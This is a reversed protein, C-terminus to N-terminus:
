KEDKLEEIADRLQLIADYLAGDLIESLSYHISISPVPKSSFYEYYLRKLEAVREEDLRVSYTKKAM